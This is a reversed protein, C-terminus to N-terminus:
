SRGGGAAHGSRLRRDPRLGLLEAALSSDFLAQHASPSPSPRLEVDPFSAALEHSECGSLTSADAIGVEVAGALEIELGRLCGLALDDVDVHSWLAWSHDRSDDVVGSADVDRVLAARLAVYSTTGIRAFYRAMEESVAKSLAYANEPRLPHHEDIPLYAPQSRRFPLGHVVNSSLWVVRRLGLLEAAAFVNWNMEVNRLFTARDGLHGPRSVNAAHVVNTAGRLVDVADGVDTLDVARAASRGDARPVWSADVDAGVVDVGSEELLRVVRRGVQGSSGTVVTTGITNRM